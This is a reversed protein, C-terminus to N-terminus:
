GRKCTAALWRHLGFGVCGTVVSNARDFGFPGSFHTRHFNFSALALDQNPLRAVLERKMAFQVQMVRRVENQLTPYFHDSAERVHARIDLRAALQAAADTAEQLGARVFTEDGAFVYERVPFEWLRTLEEFCSEHRFVTARTTVVLNEGGNYRALMPYINLCAAPTLFKRRYQIDSVDVTSDRAVREYASPDVTAAVTIQTPFASLYGCRALDDEDILSSVHWERLARNPVCTRVLADIQELALADEEYLSIHGEKSVAAPRTNM